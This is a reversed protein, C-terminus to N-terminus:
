RDRPARGEALFADTAGPQAARVDLTAVITELPEDPITAGVKVALEDYGGAGAGAPVLRAVVTGRETVVLAEGRKVRELYKSLNQRLERVGISEAM